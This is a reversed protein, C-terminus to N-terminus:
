KILFFLRISPGSSWTLVKFHKLFNRFIPIATEFFVVSIFVLELKMILQKLELKKNKAHKESIQGMEFKGAANITM